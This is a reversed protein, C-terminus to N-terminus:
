ADAAGIDDVFLVDIREVVVVHEDFGILNGDAVKVAFLKEGTEHLPFLSSSRQKQHEIVNTTKESHCLEFLWAPEDEAWQKIFYNRNQYIIFFQKYIQLIVLLIDM